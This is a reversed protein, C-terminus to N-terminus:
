QQPPFANMMQARDRLNLFYMIVGLFAIIAFLLIIIFTGTWNGFLASAALNSNDTAGVTLAGCVKTVTKGASTVTLVATKSGNDFYTKALYNIDGVLNDTGEWKYTYKGNGGKVDSIWVVTDNIDANDTNPSCAVVLDNNNTTATVNTNTVPATYSVPAVYTIPRASISVTNGCQRSVTQGNSSITVTATKNGLLWYTKAISSSYGTLSDTGSWGYVYSGNGGTPYASWTIINGSITSTINASCSVSLNSDNNYDDGVAVYNRCDENVRQSGSTVTVSAYKRGESTYTKYVRNNSGSLNNTGDWDYRYS